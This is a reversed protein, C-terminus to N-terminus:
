ASIRSHFIRARQIRVVVISTAFVNWYFFIYKLHDLLSCFSLLENSLELFFCLRSRNVLWNAPQTFIMSGPRSDWLMQLANPQPMFKIVCIDLMHFLKTSFESFIGFLNCDNSAQHYCVFAESSKRQATIFFLCNNIISILKLQQM